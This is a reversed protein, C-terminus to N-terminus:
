LWDGERQFVIGLQTPTLTASVRASAHSTEREREDRGLLELTLWAAGILAAGAGVGYLVNALRAQTRVSERANAAVDAEARTHVPQVRYDHANDKMVIGTVLGAGLLAVGGALIVCPALPVSNATVQVVTPAVAPRQPENAHTRTRPASASRETEPARHTNTEISAVSAPARTVPAANPPAGTSVAVSTSAPPAPARPLLADLLGPVAALTQPTLKAGLQWHTVRTISGPGRADFYLLTLVLDGQGLEIAPAILVEVGFESAVARL